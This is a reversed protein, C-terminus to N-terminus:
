LARGSHRRRSVARHLGPEDHVHRAALHRRHPRRFGGRSRVYRPEAPDGARSGARRAPRQPLAHRDAARLRHRRRHRDHGRGPQTFEPVELFARSWASSRSVAASASSRRSSRCAWRSCRASPSSCSSSQPASASSSAPSSPRVRRLHVRWARGAPRPRRSGPLMERVVQVEDEYEEFDRDAFNLEAYAIRGDDSIQHANGPEYPSVVQVDSVEQEVRRLLAGDDRAGRSRRRGTRSSCSRATCAPASASVAKRSCTSPKRAKLAPSRFETKFEGAFMSSLVFVAVIGIVWSALIYRRRRYCFRALSRLM